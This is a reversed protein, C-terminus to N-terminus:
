VRCRMHYYYLQLNAKVISTLLLFHLMQDHQMVHTKERRKETKGRLLHIWWCFGRNFGVIWCIVNGVGV